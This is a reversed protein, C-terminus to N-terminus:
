KLGVMALIRRAKPLGLLRALPAAVKVRPTDPLGLARHASVAEFFEPAGCHMLSRAAMDYVRGLAERRTDDVHGRARWLAEIQRGNVLVDRWFKTPERRSLSGALVRYGVGLHPAHVFRAGLYAADFLHRADQIVPLDPSFGGIREALARRYLIAAPPAWLHTATALESDDALAAADVTRIPGYTRPGEEEIFERWDCITVDASGAEAAAIQRGLANSELLDDSDLFVVWEGKALALGTNRAASVGRNPGFLTTIAEGYSHLLDATGDTSGDDIAILELDVDQALASDITERVTSQSNYCPVIVSVVPM